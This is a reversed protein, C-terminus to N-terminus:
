NVSGESNSEAVPSGLLDTHIYIVRPSVIIVEYDGITRWESCFHGTSCFNVRFYHHGNSLNSVGSSHGLIYDDVTQWLDDSITTLNVPGTRHLKQLKYYGNGNDAWSVTFSKGDNGMVAQLGTIPPPPEAIIIMVAASSNSTFRKDEAGIKYKIFFTGNDNLAPTYKIVWDVGGEPDLVAQASGSAPQQTIVPWLADTRSIFGRYDNDIVPIYVSEVPNTAVLNIRDSRPSPKDSLCVNASNSKVGDQRVLRYNFCDETGPIGNLTYVINNNTDVSVSAFKAPHALDLEVHTGTVNVDNNMVNLTITDYTTTATASTSAMKSVLQSTTVQSAWDIYAWDNYAVFEGFHITVMGANDSRQGLNDEVQYYFTDSEPSMGEKVTYKITNNSLVEITGATPESTLKPVLLRNSADRDVDNFTINFIASQTGKQMALQDDMAIPKSKFLKNITLQDILVYGGNAASGGHDYAWLELQLVDNTDISSHSNIMSELDFDFGHFDGATASFLNATKQDGNTSYGNIKLRVETKQSSGAAINDDFAWGTIRAHGPKGLAYIDLQGYPLTSDNFLEVGGSLLQHRPQCIETCGTIYYRFYGSFPRTAVHTYNKTRGENSYNPKGIYGTGRTNHNPLIEELQTFEDSSTSGSLKQETIAFHTTRKDAIWWFQVENGNLRNLIDRGDAAYYIPMLPDVSITQNYNIPNSCLGNFCYGISFSYDGPGTYETFTGDEINTAPFFEDRVTFQTGSLNALPMPNIVGNFDNYVVNDKIVNLQYADAGAIAPWNLHLDYKTLITANNAGHTMSSTDQALSANATTLENDNIVMFENTSYTPSRRLQGTEFAVIDCSDKAMVAAVNLKYRGSGLPIKLTNNNGALTAKDHCLWPGFAGYSGNSWSQRQYYIASTTGFGDLNIIAEPGYQFTNAQASDLSVKPIFILHHGNKIPVWTSANAMQTVSLGLWLILLCLWLARTLSANGSFM